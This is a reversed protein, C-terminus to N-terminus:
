KESRRIITRAILNGTSRPAMKGPLGRAPIVHDGMIGRRSALDIAICNDVAATLVMEPVTNFILPYKQADRNAVSFDVARYGLADLMARDSEKRVAVTVPCGFGQLLRGLCKGIRGWGLIMVPTDLLTSEMQTLAIQLACEATIAANRALFGPDKLLDMTRYGSLVPHDLNGGIVTIDQPLRELIHSLDSGDRLLGSDGFSPIDLLLHTVEPSPHDTVTFGGKKLIQAAYACSKTIGIPYLMM